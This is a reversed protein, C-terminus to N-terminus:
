GSCVAQTYPVQTCAHGLWSCITGSHARQRIRTVLVWGVAVSTTPPTPEALAEAAKLGEALRTGFSLLAVRSGSRDMALVDFALAQVLQEAPAAELAGPM